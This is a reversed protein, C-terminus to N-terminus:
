EAARTWFALTPRVIAATRGVDTEVLLRTGPKTAEWKVQAFCNIADGLMPSRTSSTVAGVAGGGDSEPKLVTSGSVPQAADSGPERGGPEDVRLAVLRQKPHGLSQMRAVVEQGLYCGKTFSVRQELIGTEHPLNGPGFDINFLPTGAEIRAINYAAWGAPRLRGSGDGVGAELLAAYVDAAAKAEALLELGIEGTTDRRDVIVRQGAMEVLCAEGDALASLRPGASPRSAAELVAPASPGHLALRHMSEGVDQVSVNESFVFSMLSRAADAAVLADVDAWMEEGLEILRLDADIRGKRNLWFASRAKFPAIGKLEQTVMRGLFELRDRGTIKLTGRQPLDILVCSKRLAAYEGEVEGFSEVVLASGDDGYRLFSPEAQQLLPTLPSSLSM